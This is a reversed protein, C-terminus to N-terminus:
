NGAQHNSEYWRHWAATDTGFNQGSIDALAHITWARQQASLLSSDLWGVFSEAAKMRQQHTYMGSAALGCAAREQVLPSPDNRFRDLMMPITEDTGVLALGNVASARINADPDNFYAGIIKTTHGPDIGRNALAGLMWLAWARSNRNGVSQELMRLGADSQPVGDVALQAAIAAERAHLDGANLDADIFQDTKATRHTKGTWTASRSLVEDAASADGSAVRELLTEVEAQKAGDLSPAARLSKRPSWNLLQTSAIKKELSQLAWATLLALLVVGTLVGIVPATRVFWPQEPALPTSLAPALGPSSANEIESLAHVVETDSPQPAALAGPEVGGASSKGREDTAM